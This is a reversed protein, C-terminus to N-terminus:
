LINKKRRWKLYVDRNGPYHNCFFSFCNEYCNITYKIRFSDFYASGFIFYNIIIAVPPLILIGILMEKSNYKLPKMNIVLENM